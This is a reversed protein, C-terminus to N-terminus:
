DLLWSLPLSASQENGIRKPIIEIALGIIIADQSQLGIPAAIMM